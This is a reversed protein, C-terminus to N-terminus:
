LVKIQYTVQSTDIWPPPLVNSLLPLFSSLLCYRCEKIGLLRSFVSYVLYFIFLNEKDTMNFSLYIYINLPPRQSSKKIRKVDIIKNSMQLNRSTIKHLYFTWLNLIIKLEKRATIKLSKLILSTISNTRRAKYIM